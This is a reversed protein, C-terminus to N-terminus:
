KVHVLTAGYGYEKFSADQYHLKPYKTRLAKGIEYKLKGAGVGHIFVVRRTHKSRIATELAVEFRSLQIRIIEGPSLHQHDEVLEHIHLDVEAQEAERPSSRQRRPQEKQRISTEIAQATTRQMLQERQSDAIAIVLARQEFYDNDTFAGSKLMRVPNVEYDFHEPGHPTYDINKLYIAQLNLVPRHSLDAAALRQLPEKTDPAILGSAMPSLQGNQWVGLSYMVRYTSDNILYCDFTTTSLRNIDNPVFALLLAIDDGQVDRPAPAVPEDPVDAEDLMDLEHPDASRHRPASAARPQEEVEFNYDNTTIAVLETCLTPIQFGDDTEGVATRTDALRVVKGGGVANLFRVKDGVKIAM